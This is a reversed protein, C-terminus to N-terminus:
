NEFEILTADLVSRDASLVGVIHLKTGTALQSLTGGKLQLDSRTFNVSVGRLVLRRAALDVSSPKGELDFSRGSGNGSNSVQLDAAVLVGSRLAGSVAVQAGLQVTGSVKASGIDVVTGEVLLRSTSLVAGILGQLKVNDRDQTASAPQGAQQAGVM